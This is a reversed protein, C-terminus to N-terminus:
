TPPTYTCRCTRGRLEAADDRPDPEALGAPRLFIQVSDAGVEAATALPQEPAVHAGVSPSNTSSM